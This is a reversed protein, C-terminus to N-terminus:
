SEKATSIEVVVSHHSDWLRSALRPALAKRTCNTTFITPRANELRTDIIQFLKDQAWTVELLDSRSASEAGLDDLVLLQANLLATMQRDFSDDSYGRRLDDLVRPVKELLIPEGRDLLANVMAAALHTKGTRNPGIFTLFTAGWNWPDDAFRRAYSLARKNQATVTFTEFRRRQVEIPLDRHLRDCQRKLACICPVLQNSAPQDALRYVGPCDQGPCDTFRLPKM